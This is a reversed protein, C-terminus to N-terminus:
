IPTGIPVGIFLKMAGQTFRKESTRARSMKHAPSETLPTAEAALAGDTVFSGQKMGGMSVRLGGTDLPLGNLHLDPDQEDIHHLDIIHGFAERGIEFNTYSPLIRTEGGCCQAMQQFITPEGNIVDPVWINLRDILLSRDLLSFKM